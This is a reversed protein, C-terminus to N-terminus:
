RLLYVGIRVAKREAPLPTLTGVFIRRNLWAHPGDPATLRVVSRAYRGDPSPDEILVRNHVTIVTGDDTEMEYLADLEKVGDPRVLQRDAGGPLVRGRLRPGEFTGGLIDIIFREGLPSRGLARRPGIDVTADYLPELTPLNPHDSNM